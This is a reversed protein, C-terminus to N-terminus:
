GPTSKLGENETVANKTKQIEKNKQSGGNKKANKAKSKNSMFSQISKHVSLAVIGLPGSQKIFSEAYQDAVQLKQEETLNTKGSIASKLSIVDGDATTIKSKSNNGLEPPGDVLLNGRATSIQSENNFNPELDDGLDNLSM